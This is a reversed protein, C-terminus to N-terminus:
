SRSIRTKRWEQRRDISSEAVWRDRHDDKRVGWIDPRKGSGFVKQSTVKYDPHTKRFHDTAKEEFKKAKKKREEFGM